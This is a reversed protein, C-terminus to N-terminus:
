NNGEMKKILTDYKFWLLPHFMFLIKKSEVNTRV